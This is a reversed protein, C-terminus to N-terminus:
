GSSNQLDSQCWLAEEQVVRLIFAMKPNTGRPM